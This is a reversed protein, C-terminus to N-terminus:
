DVPQWLQFGTGQDDVCEALLGYPRREV